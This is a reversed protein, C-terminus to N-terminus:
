FIGCLVLNLPIRDRSFLHSCNFFDWCHKFLQLRSKVEDKKKRAHQISSVSCDEAHKIFIYKVKQQKTDTLEPFHLKWMYSRCIQIPVCKSSWVSPSRCVHILHISVLIISSSRRWVYLIFGSIECHSTELEVRHCKWMFMNQMHAFVATEILGQVTNLGNTQYLKLLNWLLLVFNSTEEKCAHINFNCSVTQQQWTLLAPLLAECPLSQM